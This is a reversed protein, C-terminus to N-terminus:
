ARLYPRLGEFNFDIERAAEASYSVEQQRSVTTKFVGRKKLVYRRMGPIEGELNIMLLLKSFLERAQERKGAQYLDWIQAYMKAYPAGPMTGDLGLRMEYLMGRGANGSFVAKIAPRRRALAQMREIVPSTEEKVYGLHPFEGALEVLFEVSPVVGKAGGTTQIFFPRRILGALARYYARFDDLSKAERPPMAIVADPGLEEAHRAYELAEGTGAGQIGLVLAPKRGRAAKALVGMGRLREPKSLQAYESAMQPWVMGHVGCRELFDVEKALDEYDLEKAETFPTAMIIFAGRMPKPAPSSAWAAAALSLFHRRSWNGTM